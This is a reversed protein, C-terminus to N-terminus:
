KRMILPLFIQEVWEVVRVEVVDEGQWADDPSYLTASIVHTGLTLSLPATYTFVPGGVQVGDSWLTWYGEDPLTVNTQVTVTLTTSPTGDTSLLAGSPPDVISIPQSFIRFAASNAAGRGLDCAFTATNVLYDGWLSLSDSVQATFSLVHSEGAALSLGSWRLDGNPLLEYPDGLSALPTMETPLHDTIVLGTIAVEPNPNAVNLTYTVVDGAVATAPTVSKLVSPLAVVRTTYPGYVALNGAGDEAYLYFTYDGPQPNQLIYSWGDAGASSLADVYRQGDPTEGVAYLSAVGSGDFSEGSMVTTTLTSVVENLQQTVTLVPAVTDVAFTLTLPLSRNGVSDLGYLTLTQTVGDVARPLTLEYEWTGATDKPLERPTFLLQSRHYAGDDEAPFYDCILIQWEGQAPEGYFISLPDDPRREYDFYPAGV